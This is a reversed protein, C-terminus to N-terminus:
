TVAAVDAGLKNCVGAMKLLPTHHNANFKYMISKMGFKESFSPHNKHM